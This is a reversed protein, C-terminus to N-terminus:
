DRHLTMLEARAEPKEKMVGVMKATVMEGARQIGRMSMCTHSATLIVGTGIPDLHEDIASAIQDTLREQVQLRRAYLDVLRALKSLGVIQGGPAPIYAVTAHGHFPLMHHECLSSFPVRRVVIMVDHDVAFTKSLIEAPDLAYGSTLERLAKVVRAPTELLGDRTPDEGIHQLLRVVADTPEGGDREWPFDIWDEVEIARPALHGPSWPKRFMADVVFGEATYRDLTAGTDVLDDVILTQGRVPESVVKVGLHKAVEMAPFLGGQPVGHVSLIPSRGFIWRKALDAAAM